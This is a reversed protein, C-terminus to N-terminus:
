RDTQLPYIRTRDPLGKLLTARDQAFQFGHNVQDFITQSVVVELPRAAGCLRAAVNVTHGLVTYERRIESGLDGRMVEGSHIGLGIPLTSWLRQGSFQKAWRIIEQAARCAQYPGQEDCFVALMGDGSFKDVYGGWHRIIDTQEALVANMAQFIPEMDQKYSTATFGRLDSFLITAHLKEVDRKQMVQAVAAKSLYRELESLLRDNEREARARAVLNTLRAVMVRPDIPRCIFDDAGAELAAAHMGSDEENTIVVIPLRRLAPHARLFKCQSPGLTGGLDLIVTDPQERQIRPILDESAAQRSITVGNHQLHRNLMEDDVTTHDLAPTVMLIKSGALREGGSSPFVSGPTKPKVRNPRGCNAGAPERNVSPSRVVNNPFRKVSFGELAFPLRTEDIQAM